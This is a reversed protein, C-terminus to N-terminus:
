RLMVQISQCLVQDSNCTTFGFGQSQRPGRNNTIHAKSTKKTIMGVIIQWPILRQISKAKVLLNSCCQSKTTDVGAWLWNPLRMVGVLLKRKKNPSFQLLDKIRQIQSVM